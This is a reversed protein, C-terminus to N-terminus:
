MYKRALPRTGGRSGDDTASRTSLLKATCRCRAVQCQCSAHVKAYVASAQLEQFVEPEPDREKCMKLVLKDTLRYVIKSQGHGVYQRQCYFEGMIWGDITFPLPLRRTHTQKHQSVEMQVASAWITWQEAPQGARNGTSGASSHM